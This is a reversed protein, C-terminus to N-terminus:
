SQKGGSFRQYGAVSFVTGPRAWPVGQESFLQEQECGRLVAEDVGAIVTKVSGRFPLRSISTSPVTHVASSEHAANACLTQTLALDITCLFPQQGELRQRLKHMILSRIDDEHDMSRLERAPGDRRKLIAREVGESQTWEIRGEEGVVTIEPGRDEDETSCHSAFFYLRVGEPTGIRMCATDASEIDHGRYLEAEVDQVQACAHLERGALFCILMLHHALANNFPSDLTWAGAVRLRGAWPNRAYYSDLRPWLGWVKICRLRGIEGGLIAAKLALTFPDYMRQYGVAVFRNAKRAAAQMTRVDQIAGAAPKEVFVNAGAQLAAVTMPAHLHIGTPILCLDLRGRWAEFM